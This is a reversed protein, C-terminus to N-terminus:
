DPFKTERGFSHREFFQYHASREIFWGRGIIGEKLEKLAEQTHISYRQQNGMQVVRNYKKQAKILLEGERPNYGCPKEVYVHKGAKLAM